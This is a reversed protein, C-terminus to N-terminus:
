RSVNLAGMKAFNSNQQQSDICDIAIEDETRRRPRFQKSNQPDRPDTVNSRGDLGALISSYVNQPQWDSVRSRM